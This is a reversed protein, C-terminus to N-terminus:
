LSALKNVVTIQMAHGWTADYTGTFTWTIGMVGDVDKLESAEAVQFAMDMNFSYPTTGEIIPGVNNIRIFKTEGSRVWTLPTMGAEDASQTIQVRMKPVTEVHAAFTGDNDANLAWIAGFRDTLSWDVSTARLLNSAADLDGQAAAVKVSTGVSTLPVLPITTPATGATGLTVNVTPTTGGTLGGSNATMLPVNTQRLAGRFEVTLPGTPLSTGTVEVDSAGINSLAVLASKVASASANYAIAATTQGDYTLTFDGGTPGGTIAITQTENGSMQVGDSIKRGMMAGTCEVGGREWKVGYETFFAYGYRLARVNSGQEVTYTAIDDSASQNINFIWEYALTTTPVQTPTTKGCISSLPYVTEDYTVPGSVKAETWEGNYVTVVPFKGGSGRYNKTDPKPTTAVTLTSLKKLAAVLTGATTELGIQTTEFVSARDLAM